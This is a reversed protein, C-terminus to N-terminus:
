LVERSWLMGASHWVNFTYVRGSDFVHIRGTSHKEAHAVAIDEPDGIGDSMVRKHTVACHGTCGGGDPCTWASLRAGTTAPILASKM